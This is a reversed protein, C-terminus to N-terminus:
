ASLRPIRAPPTAGPPPASAPWTALIARVVARDQVTGIVRPRM